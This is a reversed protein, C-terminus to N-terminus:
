RRHAARQLLLERRRVGWFDFGSSPAAKGLVFPLDVRDAPEGRAAPVDDVRSLSLNLGLDINLPWSCVRPDGTSRVVIVHKPCTESRLKTRRTRADGFKSASLMFRMAALLMSAHMTSASALARSSAHESAGSV